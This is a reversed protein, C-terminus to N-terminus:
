EGGCTNQFWEDCASEDGNNCHRKLKRCNREFRKQEFDEDDDRNAAHARGSNAIIALAAAGLIVGAAIKAGRNRAETPQTTAPLAASIAILAAMTASVFSKM